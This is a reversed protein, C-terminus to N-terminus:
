YLYELIEPNLCSMFFPYLIFNSFFLSFSVSFSLFLSLTCTFWFLFLLPFPPCISDLISLRFSESLILFHLSSCASLIQFLFCRSLCFCSFQSSLSCLHLSRRSFPFPIPSPVLFLGPFHSSSGRVSIRPVFQGSPFRLSRDLIYFHLSSYSWVCVTVQLLIIFYLHWQLVLRPCNIQRWIM